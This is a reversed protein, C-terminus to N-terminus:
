RAKAQIQLYDAYDARLAEERDEQGAAARASDTDTVRIPAAKVGAGARLVDALYEDHTLRATVQGAVGRASDTDTVSVVETDLPVFSRLRAGREGAATHQAAAVRAEDTSSPTASAALSVTAGVAAVLLLYATKM